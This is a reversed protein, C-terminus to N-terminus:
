KPGLISRNTKKNVKTTNNGEAILNKVYRKRKNIRTKKLESLNRELGSNLGFM